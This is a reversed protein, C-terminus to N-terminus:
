CWPWVRGGVQGKSELPDGCMHGARHGQAETMKDLGRDGAERDGDKCAGSAQEQAHQNGTTLGM